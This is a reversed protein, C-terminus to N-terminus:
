IHGYGGDVSMYQDYDHYLKVCRSCRVSGSVRGDAYVIYGNPSCM